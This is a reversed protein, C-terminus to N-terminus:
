SDGITNFHQRIPETPVGRIRQHISDSVPERIHWEGDVNWSIQGDDILEIWFTVMDGISHFVPRTPFAFAYDLHWFSVSRPSAAAATSSYVAARGHGADLGKAM